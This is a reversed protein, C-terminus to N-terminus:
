INKPTLGSCFYLALQNAFLSVVFFAQAYHGSEQLLIM